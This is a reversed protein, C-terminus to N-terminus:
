AKRLLLFSLIAKKPVKTIKVNGTFIIFQSINIKFLEVFKVSTQKSIQVKYSVVNFLFMNPTYENQYISYFCNVSIGILITRDLMVTQYHM